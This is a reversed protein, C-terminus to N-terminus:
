DILSVNVYSGFNIKDFSLSPLTEKTCPTIFFGDSRREYQGLIEENVLVFVFVVSSSESTTTTTTPVSIPIFLFTTNSRRINPCRAPRVSVRRLIELCETLQGNWGSGTGSGTGTQPHRRISHHNLFTMRHTESPFAALLKDIIQLPIPLLANLNLNVHIHIVGGGIGGMM